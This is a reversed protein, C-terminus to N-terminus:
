PLLGITLGICFLGTVFYASRLLMVSYFDSFGTFDSYAMPTFYNIFDWVGYLKYRLYFLVVAIYGLLLVFTIAQNRVMMMVFFSIGLVFVLTPLSILLPYVIFTFLNFNIDDSIFSIVAGILLVILNLIFFVKLIGLTKGTVYSFNSIDRIYFAETTDLKKDRGLFDASLFIAIVAQAINLFFLNLYPVAGPILRGPIGGGKLIGFGVLDFFIIIILALVSFIRFFWSRLLTKSEYRAVMRIKFLTNM